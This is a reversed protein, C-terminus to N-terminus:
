GTSGVFQWTQSGTKGQADNSATAPLTVAFCYNVSPGGATVASTGSGSVTLVSDDPVVVSPSAGFTVANCTTGAVTRVGYRLHTALGTGGPAGAVLQVVGDVSGSAKVSYLAYTTDGPKMSTPAVVFSLTAASGPSAHDTFDTGNTSGVIGFTGATFEAGTYQSDTWSALTVSAGVGFVLGGALLARIRRSRRRREVRAVARPGM